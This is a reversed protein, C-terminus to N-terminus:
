SDNNQPNAWHTLSSKICACPGPNLNCADIYFALCPGFLRNPLSLFIAPAQWGIEMNMSLGQRLPPSLAPCRVNKDQRQTHIHVCM